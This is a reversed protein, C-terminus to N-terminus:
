VKDARLNNIYKCAETLIDAYHGYIGTVHHIYPGDVIKKEWKIWDEVEMWVYTGETKPGACTKGEGLFMSYEGNISDFRGITLDGQKLEWQGRGGGDIAPNKTNNGILANPFPGCHWLLEANENSPHRITLDAFLSPTRNYDAAHLMASTVAGCVDGECAVPYGLATLEGILQCPLVGMIDNLGTWCETSAAAFGGNDMEKKIYIIMAALTKLKEEGLLSIDIRNKISAIQAELEKSGKEILKKVGSYLRGVSLPSVEIGFKSLMDDENYMVSFFANPRDGIKLIRMSKFTKVVAAARCFNNVGDLFVKDTPYCNEIYTFKVGFRSLVKSSALIGCQTDRIRVGNEDPSDDRPGWLLVPLGMEKGIKAVTEEPGFDTHLLFVADVKKSKLYDTIAPVQALDTAIGDPVVSDITVIEVNKDLNKLVELTNNKFILANKITTFGTGRKVPAIGLKLKIERSM